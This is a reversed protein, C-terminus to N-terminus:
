GVDVHPHAGPGDAHDGTAVHPLPRALIRERDHLARMLQEPAVSRGRQLMSSEVRQSGSSYCCGLVFDQAFAPNAARAKSTQGRIGSYIQRVPVAMKTSYDRQERNNM